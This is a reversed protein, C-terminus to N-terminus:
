RFNATTEFLSRRGDPLLENSSTLPPTQSLLV